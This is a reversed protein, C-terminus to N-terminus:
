TLPNDVGAQDPPYESTMGVYSTLMASAMTEVIRPCDKKLAVAFAKNRM